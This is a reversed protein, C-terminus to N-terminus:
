GVAIIKGRLGKESIGQIEVTVIEKARHNDCPFYVPLFNGSLGRHMGGKKEGEVVVRLRRGLFRRYFSRKKSEGLQRLLAAREKVLAASL